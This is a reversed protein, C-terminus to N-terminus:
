TRLPLAPRETRPRFLIGRFQTTWLLGGPACTSITTPNATWYRWSQRRTPHGSRAQLCVTTCIHTTPTVTDQPAERHHAAAHLRQSRIENTPDAQLRMGTKLRNVYLRGITGKENESNTEEDVITSLITVEAPTLGLNAAKTATPREGCCSTTTASKRWQRVHRRRGTYGRLHQEHFHGHGTRPDSRIVGHVGHGVTREM